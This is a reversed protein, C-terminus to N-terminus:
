RSDKYNRWIAGGISGKGNSSGQGSPVGSGGSTGSSSPAGSGSPTGSSRTTGSERSTGSGNDMYNESDNAYDEWPSDSGSNNKSQQAPQTPRQNQNNNPSPRNGAYGRVAKTGSAAKSVLGIASSVLAAQAITNAVSKGEFHFIEKIIDEAEYM